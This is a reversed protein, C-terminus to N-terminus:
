RLWTATLPYDGTSVATRQGSVMNVTFLEPNDETETFASVSRDTLGLLLRSPLLHDIEALPILRRTPDLNSYVLTTEGALTVRFVFECPTPVLPGLNAGYVRVGFETSSLRWAFVEILQPSAHVMQEPFQDNLDISLTLGFDDLANAEQGTYLDVVALPAGSLDRYRLFVCGAITGTPDYLLNQFEGTALSPTVWPIEHSFVRAPTLTDHPIRWLEYYSGPRVGLVYFAKKSIATLRLVNQWSPWLLTKEVSDLVVTRQPLSFLENLQGDGNLQYWYVEEWVFLGRYEPGVDPPMAPSDTTGYAFWGRGPQDRLLLYPRSPSGSAIDPNDTDAGFLVPTQVTISKTAYLGTGTSFMQLSSTANRAKSLLNVGSPTHALSGAPFSTYRVKKGATWVALTMISGVWTLYALGGATEGQILLERGWSFIRVQILSGGVRQVMQSVGLREATRALRRALPILGAAVQTNGTLRKREIGM